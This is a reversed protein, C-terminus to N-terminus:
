LEEVNQADPGQASMTVNNPLWATIDSIKNRKIVRSTDNQRLYITSNKTWCCKYDNTTKFCKAKYLLDQLRSILHDYIGFTTSRTLDLDAAVGNKTARRASMIKKIIPYPRSAQASKAPVQHAINIDQMTIDAGICSFLKLCISTTDKPSETEAVQPIGVVKINDQYSYM